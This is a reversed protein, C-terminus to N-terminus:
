DSHITIKGFRFYHVPIMLKAKRKAENETRARVLKHYSNGYCDNITGGHERSTHTWYQVKWTKWASMLEEKITLFVRDFKHFM